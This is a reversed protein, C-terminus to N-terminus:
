LMYRDAFLRSSHCEIMEKMGKWLQRFEQKQQNAFITIGRSGNQFFQCQLDINSISFSNERSFARKKAQFVACYFSNIERGDTVRMKYPVIQLCYKEIVTAVRGETTKGTILFRFFYLHQLCQNM